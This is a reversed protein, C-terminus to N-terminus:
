AFIDKQCSDNTTIVKCVFYNPKSSIKYKYSNLFLFPVLHILTHIGLQYYNFCLLNDLEKDPLSCYGVAHARVTTHM